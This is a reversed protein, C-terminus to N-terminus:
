PAPNDCIHTFTYHFHFSLLLVEKAFKSLMAKFGNARASVESDEFGKEVNVTRAVGGRVRVLDISPLAGVLATRRRVEEGSLEWFPKLDEAIADFEDVMVFSQQVAYAYWKDFGAPPARNYRRKYEAVAAPLSASQRALKARFRADATDMLQPIPHKTNASSLLPIWSSSAREQPPTAAHLGARLFALCVVALFIYGSHHHLWGYVARSGRSPRQNESLMPSPLARDFHSDDRDFRSDDRGFRSNDLDLDHKSGRQPFKSNNPSSPSPSERKEEVEFGHEVDPSLSTMFTEDFAPHVSLRRESM